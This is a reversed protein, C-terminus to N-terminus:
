EKSGLGYQKETPDIAKIVPALVSGLLIAYEPRMDAAIALIVTIGSAIVARGYSKIAAIHKDSLKM